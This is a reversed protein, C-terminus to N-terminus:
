QLYKRRLEGELDACRATLEYSRRLTSEARGLAQETTSPVPEGSRSLARRIGALTDEAQVELDYGEACVTKVQCVLSDSCTTKRLVNLPPRKQGSPAERLQHVAHAIQGAESRVRADSESKSSCALLVLYSVAARNANIM